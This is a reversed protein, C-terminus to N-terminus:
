LKARLLELTKAVRSARTEAKKATEISRAQEKRVSFSQAAWVNELAPDGAFAEALEAPVEVTREATDLELGVVVTEGAKVGAQERVEAAVPILFKGGMSGLTSRYVFGNLSVSVAPRKGGGLAAVLDPPVEIGTATKGHLELVASFNMASITGRGVPM